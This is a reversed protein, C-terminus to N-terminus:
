SLELSHPGDPKMLPRQRRHHWWGTLVSLDAIWSKAHTEFKDVELKFRLLKRAHKAPKKWRM